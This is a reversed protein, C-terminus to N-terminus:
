LNHAKILAEVDRHRCSTSTEVLFIDVLAGNRKRYGIRDYRVLVNLDPMYEHYQGPIPVPLVYSNADVPVDVLDGHAPGGVFLHKM